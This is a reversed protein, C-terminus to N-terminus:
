HQVAESYVDVTANQAKQNGYSTMCIGLKIVERLMTKDNDKMRNWKNSISSVYKIIFEHLGCDIMM